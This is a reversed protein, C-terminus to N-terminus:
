GRIKKPVITLVIVNITVEVRKTEYSLYTVVFRKAYLSAPLM